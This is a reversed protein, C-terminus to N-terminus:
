VWDCPNTHIEHSFTVVYGTVVYEPFIVPPFSDVRVLKPKRSCIM